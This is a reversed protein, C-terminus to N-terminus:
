CCLIIQNKRKANDRHPSMFEEGGGDMHHVADEEGRGEEERRKRKMGGRGEDEEGRGEEM